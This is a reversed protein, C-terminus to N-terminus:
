DNDGNYIALECDEAFDILDSLRRGAVSDIEPDLEMLEAIEVMAIEYMEKSDM